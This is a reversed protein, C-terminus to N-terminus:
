PNGPPAAQAAASRVYASVESVVRRMGAQAAATDIYDLTIAPLGAASAAGAGTHLMTLSLALMDGPAAAAGITAYTRRLDHPTIHYGVADEISAWAKRVDTLAGPGSKSAFVFGEPDHAFERRARLIALAADSLPLRIAHAGAPTQTGRRKTGEAAPDILLAGGDFDVAPWRLQLVLSRRLGTLLLLRFVDRPTSSIHESARWARGVDALQLMTRRKAGAGVGRRLERGPNEGAPWDRLGRHEHAIAYLGSVVALVARLTHPTLPGRLGEPGPAVQLKGHRLEDILARWWPLRLEDLHRPALHSLYRAYTKADKQRTAVRALPRSREYHGWAQAVTMRPPGPPQEAERLAAHKRMVAQKVAEDLKIPATDGHWEVLGLAEKRDVRARGPSPPLAYRLIYTRRVHGRKDPAMVRVGLGSINRHWAEIYPKGPPVVLALIQRVTAWRPQSMLPSWPPHPFSAAM